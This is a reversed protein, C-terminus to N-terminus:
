PKNKVNTEIPIEIRCTTGKGMESEILITGNHKEIIRYSIALGLGVGVGVGKTTFGPNFIQDRNEPPIGRGTDTFTICVNSGDISTQIHIEGTNEIAEIANSLINMFVQNLEGPFCAVPPIKGYTEIIEIRDNLDKQRLLLISQLGEHIDIRQFEAEDLRAFNKLSNVIQSIRESVTLTTQANTELLHMAKQYNADQSIETQRDSIIQSIRNVCRRIV